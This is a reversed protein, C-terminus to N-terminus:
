GVSSSVRKEHVVLVNREAHNVVKAAVTGLVRDLGHYRHSGVVILDVELENAVDLICRWPDGAVVIPPGFGVEPAEAMLTHLTARTQSGLLDELHDPHGHAAAPIEPPVSLVRVVSLRAGLDKALSVATGFVLLARASEDLAVLISRVPAAPLTMTSAEGSDTRRSAHSV